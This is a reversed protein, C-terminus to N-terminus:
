ETGLFGEVIGRLLAAGETLRELALPRGRAEGGAALTDRDQALERASIRGDGDYDLSDVAIRALAGGSLAGAAGALGSLEPPAEAQLALLWAAGRFLRALEATGLLRDGSVDAVRVVSAACDPVSGVGPGCAAEIAEVAGLFAVGEGHAAFPLPTAPCRRWAAVPADGPIRDDRLKNSPEATEIGEGAPRLMLRPGEAGRGTGVLWGGAERSETLRLLRGAGDAPVRAAGRASLALMATPTACGGQFWAGRLADPVPAAIAAPEQARAGPTALLAAILAALLIPLVRNV